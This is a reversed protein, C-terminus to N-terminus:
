EDLTAAPNVRIKGQFVRIAFGTPDTLKLDYVGLTFVTSDLLETVSEPVTVNVSGDAGLVIMGNESTCDFGPFLSQDFGTRVQMAAKWGPVTLDVPAGNVSYIFVFNFTAGIEIILNYTAAPMAM